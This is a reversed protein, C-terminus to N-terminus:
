IFVFYRGIGFFISSLITLTISKLVEYLVFLGSLELTKINLTYIYIMLVCYIKVIVKNKIWQPKFVNNVKDLCTSVHNENAIQQHDAIAISLTTVSDRIIYEKSM